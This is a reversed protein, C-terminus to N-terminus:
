AGSYAGIALWNYGIKVCGMNYQGIYNTFGQYAYGGYCNTGNFAFHFLDSAYARANNVYGSNSYSFHFIHQHLMEISEGFIPSNFQFIIKDIQLDYQIIETLSNGILQRVIYLYTYTGIYLSYFYNYSSNMAITKVLSYNTTTNFLMIHTSNRVTFAEGFAHLNYLNGYNKITKINWLSQNSTFIRVRDTFNIFINGQHCKM